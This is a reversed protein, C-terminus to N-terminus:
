LQEFVIFTKYKDETKLRSKRISVGIGKEPLCYGLGILLDDTSNIDMSKPHTIHYENLATFADEISLLSEEKKTKEFWKKIEKELEECFELFKVHGEIWRMKLINMAKIYEEDPILSSYIKPMEITKAEDIKAKALRIEGEKELRRAAEILSERKKKIREQLWLRYQSTPSIDTSAIKEKSNEIYKEGKKIGRFGLERVLYEAYQEIPEIRKEGVKGGRFGNLKAIENLIYFHEKEKFKKRAKYYEFRAKTVM